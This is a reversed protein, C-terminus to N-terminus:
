WVDYPVRDAAAWALFWAAPPLALQAAAPAQDQEVAQILNGAGVVAESHGVPDLPLDGSVRAVVEHNGGPGVTKRARQGILGINEHDPRKRCILNLEKQVAPVQGGLPVRGAAGAPACPAGNLYSGTLGGGPEGREQPLMRCQM